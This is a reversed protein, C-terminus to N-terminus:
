MNKGWEQECMMQSTSYLSRLAKKRYDAQYPDSLKRTEDYDSIQEHLLWEFIKSLFCLLAIPRTDNMTQPAAVNNLALVLSKKWTSRFISDRISCNMIQLIYPGIVTFAAMIFSHPINDSGRAETTFSCM